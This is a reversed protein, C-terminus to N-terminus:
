VYLTKKGVTQHAAVPKLSKFLRDGGVCYPIGRERLSIVWDEVTEPDFVDYSPSSWKVNRNLFKYLNEYGGKYTPPFGMVAVKGDQGTARNAHERFDGAFFEAVRMNAVINDLREAAGELYTEFNSVYHARHLRAHESQGTFRGMQGAVLLAAVRQRAPLTQLLANVPELEDAFELDFLEGTAAYTGIACTVLSVDNSTVRTSPAVQAVTQELRFSGSCCVRIERFSALPFVEVVQALVEKPLAGIFM